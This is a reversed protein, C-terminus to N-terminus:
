RPCESAYPGELRLIDKHIHELIVADVELVPSNPSVQRLMKITRRFLNRLTERTLTDQPLHSRLSTKSYVAALVLMNGFQAHLTGFINTLILRERPTDICRNYPTSPDAGVRDFAITSQIASNICALAVELVQNQDQSLDVIGGRSRHRYTPTTVSDAMAAPSSTQSSWTSSSTPPNPPLEIDHVAIHLYPRLIMYMGGYYKARLRAVNLDTSPPENDDWILAPPLLNRWTTLIDAHLTATSAIDKLDHGTPGNTKQHKAGTKNSYLNNHAQNLIVRLHIQSSYIFMFIDSDSSENYASNSDLTVREYVGSPYAVEDQYKSIESAPLSSMEALIDTELQLCTWYVCKILNLRYHEADPINPVENDALLDKRNIKEMDRKILVLCVRCANNIWSWSELVRAYQSLYLAALLMAQAHAVDNGGQQNGLIDTAYSFYAMGPLIDINRPRTELGDAGLSRQPPERSGCAVAIPDRDAQPAPLPDKYECVKGLALVLLVIANRTSKEIAGSSDRGPSYPDLFRNESRKRKVGAHAHVNADPSNVRSAKKDPSYMNTFERLAKRLKHPNLFPHLTRIHKNYSDHLRWCTSSDLKLNGDYDLGGVPGYSDNLPVQHANDSAFTSPSSCDNPGWLGEKGAAPSPSETETSDPSGPTQAGDNLDRGEGVGWVRVLGRAQELHMPYDTVRYGAAKLRNIQDVNQTFSHMTTWEQLLQHAATRHDSQLGHKELVEKANSNGNVISHAINTHETRVSSAPTDPPQPPALVAEQKIPTSAHAAVPSMNSHSVIPSDTKMSNVRHMQSRGQTPTPMRTGHSESISVRSPYRMDPSPQNSTHSLTEEPKFMSLRGDVHHKWSNFGEIFEKLTNAIDNQSNQIGNVTDQLQMM